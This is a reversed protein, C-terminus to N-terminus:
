LGVEGELLDGAGFLTDGTPMPRLCHVSAIVIRHRVEVSKPARQHSHMVVIRIRRTDSTFDHPAVVCVTALDESRIGGLAVDAIRCGQGARLRAIVGQSPRGLY